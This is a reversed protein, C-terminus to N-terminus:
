NEFKSLLHERIRDLYLPFWHSPEKEILNGCDIEEMLGKLFIDSDSMISKEEIFELWSSHFNYSYDKEIWGNFWNERDSIPEITIIKGVMSRMSMVFRDKFGGDEVIENEKSVNKVKAKM